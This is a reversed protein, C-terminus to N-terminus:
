DMAFCNSSRAISIYLFTTCINKSIFICIKKMQMWELCSRYIKHWCELFFPNLNMGMLECLLSVYLSRYFAVKDLNFFQFLSLAYGIAKKDQIQISTRILMFVFHAKQEETCESLIEKFLNQFLTEHPLEPWNALFSLTYIIRNLDAPLNGKLQGTNLIDFALMQGLYKEIDKLTHQETECSAAYVDAFIKPGRPARFTPGQSPCIFKNYLEGLCDFMLPLHDTYYAGKLFQLMKSPFRPDIGSNVSAIILILNM